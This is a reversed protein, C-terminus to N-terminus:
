RDPPTRNKGSAGASKSNQRARKPARERIALEYAEGRSLGVNQLVAALLEGALDYDSMANTKTQLIDVFKRKIAKMDPATANPKHEHLYQILWAWRKEKWATVVVCALILAIIETDGEREAGFKESIWPGVNHLANELAFRAMVLGSRRNISFWHAGRAETYNQAESALRSRYINAEANGNDDELVLRAVNLLGAALRHKESPEKDDLNMLDLRLSRINERLKEATLAVQEEGRNRAALLAWASGGFALGVDEDVAREPAGAPEAPMVISALVGRTPPKKQKSLMPEEFHALGLGAALM